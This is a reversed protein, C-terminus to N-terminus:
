FNEVKACKKFFIYLFFNLLYSYVRETNLFFCWIYIGDSNIYLLKLFTMRFYM